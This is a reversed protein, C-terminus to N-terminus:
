ANEGAIVAADRANDRLAMDKGISYGFICAVAIVAFFLGLAGVAKKHRGTAKSGAGSM